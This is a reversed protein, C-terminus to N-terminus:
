YIDETDGQPPYSVQTSDVPNQNAVKYVLPSHEQRTGEVQPNDPYRETKM